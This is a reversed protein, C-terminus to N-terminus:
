LLKDSLNQCSSNFNSCVYVLHYLTNWHIKKFQLGLGQTLKIVGFQGFICSHEDLNCAVGLVCLYALLVSHVLCQFYLRTLRFYWVSLLFSSLLVIGTFNLLVRIAPANSTGGEIKTVPPFGQNGTGPHVLSLMLLSSSVMSSSGACWCAIGGTFVHVGGDCVNSGLLKVAM